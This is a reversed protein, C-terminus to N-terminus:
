FIRLILFSVVSTESIQFINGSKKFFVQIFLVHVKGTVALLLMKLTLSWNLTWAEAKPGFYVKPGLM